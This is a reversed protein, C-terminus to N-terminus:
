KVQIIYIAPKVLTNLPYLIIHSIWSQYLNSKVLSHTINELFKVILISVNELFRSL